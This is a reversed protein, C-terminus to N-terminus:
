LFTKGRHSNLKLRCDIKCICRQVKSERAFAVIHYNITSTGDASTFICHCTFLSWLVSGSQWVNAIKALYINEQLLLAQTGPIIEPSGNGVTDFGRKWIRCYYRITKPNHTRGHWKWGRQNIISGTRPFM